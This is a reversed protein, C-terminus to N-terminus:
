RLDGEDLRLRACVHWGGTRGPGSQVEGGYVRVRERMGSLGAGDGVPTSIGAGDDHVDVRLEGPAHRLRVSARAGPGGHKLTNTLAEQVLRYVTLQIGASLEPASGHVELSTALGAMRVREILGDLEALDPVPQLEGPPDGPRDERLGGLVQRTDLLARRGTASVIRMAEVGRQPSATAAAIAGDSLAVMVTLHHAVIDHMERAIRAREAAAALAGRQDRERELRAARDNLEALYASRTAAYLGLALAAGVLGSVFIADYWWGSGASHVAVLVAGVELVAAAALADRRPRMVAVTYLAILVAPGALVSNSWLATATATTVVWVFVARPYLRRVVLPATVVVLAPIALAPPHANDHFLEPLTSAVALVAILADLVWRVTSRNAPHQVLHERTLLM